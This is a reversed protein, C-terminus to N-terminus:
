EEMATLDFFEIEKEEIVNGKEDCTNRKIIKPHVTEIGEKEGTENNNTKLMRAYEWLPPKQLVGDVILGVTTCYKLRISVIEDGYTYCKRKGDDEKCNETYTGQQSMVLKKPIM